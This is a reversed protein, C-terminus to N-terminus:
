RWGRDFRRDRRDPGMVPLKVASQTFLASVASIRHFCPERSAGNGGGRTGRVARIQRGRVTPGSECPGTQQGWSDAGERGEGM